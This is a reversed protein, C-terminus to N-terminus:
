SVEVVGAFQNILFSFFVQQGGATRGNRCNQRESASDALITQSRGLIQLESEEIEPQGSTAKPAM